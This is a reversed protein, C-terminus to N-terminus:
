INTRKFWEILQKSSSLLFVKKVEEQELFEQYIKSTTLDKKESNLNMVYKEDIKKIFDLEEFILIIVKLIDFNINEKRSFLELNKIDRLEDNKLLNVYVKKFLERGLNNQKLEYKSNAFLCYVREISTMSTFLENMMSISPPLHVLVITTIDYEKYKKWDKYSILQYNKLKSEIKDDKMKDFFIITDNNLLIENSTLEDVSMKRWDFVQTKPVQIDRVFIQPKVNGKWENINLDGVLEIESYDAINERLNGNNFFLAEIKDKGDKINLKLHKNDAGMTTIKDVEVNDLLIKPKPNGIGFPELKNIEEILEINIENLKCTVDIKELPIFDSDTLWENALDNLETQIFPIDEENLSLGAALTHGGFTILKDTIISLAQFIDYGEISRASGKAVKSKSDISLVITPKYFKEVIKSAVIGIIGTNWDENAVIIVKNENLNQTSIIEFAEQTTKAVLEQRELNLTNLKTALIEAETYEETTLLNVANDSSELRGSANIRPALIFGVHYSTIKNDLLNNEKLLVKLGVNNTKSMEKLGLSAIIRNEGILPVLDAITGLSVIDLYEEPFRGLLAQTLKFAVGVGALHRFPYTEGPIKPNIIAFTNPLDEQPEHHDTIILTIGLQKALEAEEIASIGTDVTVIVKIGNEAAREIAECNLGYGESFRNPIYFSFDAGLKNFTHYLLVTSTIGDADYDGYILIKENKIIALQIREVVKKMDEFLYPDHLNNADISLFRSAEESNNVGRLSLVRATVPHLNSGALIEEVKNNDAFQVQWRKKAKLM